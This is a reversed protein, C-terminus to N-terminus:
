QNIIEYYRTKKISFRQEVENIIAKAKWRKARLDKDLNRVQDAVQIAASIKESNHKRLGKERKDAAIERQEKEVMGVINEYVLSKAHKHMVMLGKAYESEPYHMKRFEIEAEIDAFTSSQVIPYKENSGHYSITISDEPEGDLKLVSIDLQSMKEIYERVKM